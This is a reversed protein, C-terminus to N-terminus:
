LRHPRGKVYLVLDCEGLIPREFYIDDSAGLVDDTCTLFDVMSTKSDEFVDTETEVSLAASM